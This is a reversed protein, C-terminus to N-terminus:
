NGGRVGNKNRRTNFSLTYMRLVVNEIKGKYKSLERKLYELIKERNGEEIIDALGVCSLLQTKKNDYREYLINFKESEITGKTAMVLTPKDYAYDHVMKYAPEIAIFPIGKYKERLYTVAKASATNCAIVIVKCNKNILQRVIDDCIELIEKDTKDGYPNNKSDSYYIYNEKPLIRLIEKLVTVGGIGSDFVGINGKKSKQIFITEERM